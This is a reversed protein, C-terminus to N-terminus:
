GGAPTIDSSVYDTAQDNDPSFRRRRTSCGETADVECEMGSVNVPGHYGNGSSPATLLDGSLTAVNARFIDLVEGEASRSDPDSVSPKVSRLRLHHYLQSVSSGGHDIEVSPGELYWANIRVLENASIDGGDKRKVTNAVRDWEYDTDEVEATWVRAEGSIAGTEVLALDAIAGESGFDNSGLATVTGSITGSAHAIIACVKGATIDASTGIVLFYHTPQAVGASASVGTFEYDIGKTGDPSVTAAAQLKTGVVFDVGRTLNALNSLVFDTDSPGHKNDLDRYVPVVWGYHTSAAFTGATSSESVSLLSAVPFVTANHAQPMGTLGRPAYDAPDGTSRDNRLLHGQVTMRRLRYSQDITPALGDAQLAVIGEWPIGRLSFNVTSREGTVDTLVTVEKGGHIETLGDTQKEGRVQVGSAIGIDIEGDSDVLFAAFDGKLVDRNPNLFRKDV